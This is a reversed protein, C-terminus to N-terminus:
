QIKFLNLIKFIVITIIYDFSYIFNYKEKSISNLYNYSNMRRIFWNFGFFPYKKSEGYSKYITLNKNFSYFSKDIYYSFIGLRFGLWVDPYKNELLANLKIYKKIFKKRFSICSEPALYPWFSILNNKNKKFIKKKNTVVLPLDQILHIKKNQKFKKVITYVKAKFFYDDSDLLFIIDGKSKSILKYYSNKADIAPINKKKSKNIFYKVKKNKSYKNLLFKSGDTSKDDYILIELNKYSQNICSKIARDLYKENNYNIILISVLSKKIM